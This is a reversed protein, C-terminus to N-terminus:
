VKVAKKKDEAIETHGMSSILDWMKAKRILTKASSLNFITQLQKQDM